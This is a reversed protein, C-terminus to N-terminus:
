AKKGYGLARVKAAFAPNKSLKRWTRYMNREGKNYQSTPARKHLEVFKQLKTFSAAHHNIWRTNYGDGFGHARAWADFESDYSRGSKSCYNKLHKYLHHGKNPLKGVTEYYSKLEAKRKVPNGNGTGYGQSRAWADFEPSYSASVKCCYATLRCYLEDGQKPFNKHKEYYKRIDAQGAESDYNGKGLVEGLRKCAFGGYADDGSDIRDFANGFQQM